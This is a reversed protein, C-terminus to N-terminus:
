NLVKTAKYKKGTVTDTIWMSIIKIYGNEDTLYELPAFSVKLWNAKFTPADSIAVALNFTGLDGCDITYSEADPDYKSLTFFATHQSRFILIAVNEKAAVRLETKKADLKAGSTRNQYDVTKEFEGKVLWQSLNQEVIFDVAFKHNANMVFNHIGFGYVMKNRAYYLGSPHFAFLSGQCAYENLKKGDNADYVYILDTASVVFRNEGPVYYCITYKNIPKVSFMMNGTNYDWQVSQGDVSTGMLFHEDSSLALSTIYIKEAYTFKRMITESAVDWLDISGLSNTTLLRKGNECFQVDYAYDGKTFSHITSVSGTSVNYIKLDDTTSFAISNGDPSVSISYVNGKAPISYKLSLTAIDFCKITWDNASAFVYKNDSSFQLVASLNACYIKAYNESAVGDTVSYFRMYNDDDGIALIEGNPSFVMSNPKTTGMGISCMEKFCMRQANVGTTLIVILLVLTRLKLM